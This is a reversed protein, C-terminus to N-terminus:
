HLQRMVTTDTTEIRPAYFPLELQQPASVWLSKYMSTETYVATSHTASIPNCPSRETRNTEGVVLPRIDLLSM